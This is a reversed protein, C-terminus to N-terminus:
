RDHPNLDGEPCWLILPKYPFHPHDRFFGFAWPVLKPPVQGEPERLWDPPAGFLSDTKRRRKEVTWRVEGRRISASLRAAIPRHRRPKFRGGVMVPPLFPRLTTPMSSVVRLISDGVFSDAFHLHESQAHDCGNTCRSSTMGFTGGLAVSSANSRCLHM